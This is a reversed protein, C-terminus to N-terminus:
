EGNTSIKSFIMRGAPTQLIGTIVIEITRGLLTKGGEVVIMTGDDLYAIGQDKEKGEKIIEINMKEGPLIIMKVANSLDNINLVNIGKLRAVKNLNFDSTVLDGDLEKALAILKSDVSDLNTYDKEFISIHLKKNDQLKQLIDLGTRGRIRRLSDSSDAVGQLENVIFGPVILDGELFGTLIIDAIRGDIITSTDLIKPKSILIHGEHEKKDAPNEEKEEKFRKSLRFINIIMQKNRLSLIIGVYSFVVVLFIPIFPGVFPISRLALSVLLGLIIGTTLGIIGIILNNGPIERVKEDVASVDKIIRKGVFDGIFFGILAFIIIGSIRGILLLFNGDLYDVLFTNVTYYGGGAGVVLFVMRFILLVM